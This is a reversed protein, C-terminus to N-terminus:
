FILFFLYFKRINKMSNDIDDGYGIDDGTFGIYDGYFDIDASQNDIDAVDL